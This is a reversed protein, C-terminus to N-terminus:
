IAMLWLYSGWAKTLILQEEFKQFTKNHLEKLFSPLALFGLKLIFSRFPKSYKSPCIM